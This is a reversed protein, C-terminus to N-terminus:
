LKFGAKGHVSELLRAIVHESLIGFACKFEIHPGNICIEEDFYITFLSTIDGRMMVPGVDDSCTMLFYIRSGVVYTSFWLGNHRCGNRGLGRWWSKKEKLVGAGGLSRSNSTTRASITSRLSPRVAPTSAAAAAAGWHLPTICIAFDHSIFVLRDGRLVSMAMALNSLPIDSALTTLYISPESDGPSDLPQEPPAAVDKSNLFFLQRDRSNAQHKSLQVLIHQKDHSVLVQDVNSNGHIDGAEIGGGAAAGTTLIAYECRKSLNWDLVLVRNPAFGILIDPDVPSIIWKQVPAHELDFSKLLSTTSVDVVHVQTPTHVLIRSADPQLLLQLILGKPIGRLQIVAKQEAVAEGGPTTLSTISVVMLQRSMDVFSVYEGDASWAVKQIVFKSRSAHLIATKGLQLDHLRVIGKESGSCYFRGKPSAALAAVPDIAGQATVSTEPPTTAYNDGISDVGKRASEAFNALATPEWANAYYGRIDYFRRSDPSLALGLVADQSALQYLHTFTDTTYIKVRGYGDGTVFLQGDRSISLKSAATFVEDVEDEYPDWRFVVGEFNLGLVQPMNPHWVLERLERIAITPDKRRCHGIHIPGDLEWASVPHRRYAVAVMTGDHSLAMHSASNTFKGESEAEEVEAVVNWSPQEDELSLLRVCRDDTALLLATDDDTFLMDLPRTKSPVSEASVICEGSSINWVKTTKYGYTALLTATDNLQMRDVHEGHKLPSSRAEQFDSVHFLSVTGAAALVAVKSGSAKISSAFNSGLPIRALTDDWVEASFGTVSITDTKSFLQYISSSKPCFAPVSSYVADPTRQLVNGFKGVIRLLDVSWSELLEEEQLTSAEPSKRRKIGKSYRSLDKSAVLLIRLQRTAALAYIWTLVANSTLFRKLVSVVEGDLIPSSVLHSSWNEAAYDLFDPKNNRILKTRLGNSLLCQMATLFVQKHGEQRDITLPRNTEPQGLLYERASQHALAIKGDNDAVAFGGCLGVITRPLDLVESTIDGLAQSLEATSLCRVSCTIIQLIKKTMSRDRPNPIEVVSTAMRDYIAEMGAPLESLALEIDARTHCRNVRDVALRLWLFNNESAEVIREEIEERFDPTGHAELEHRAYHHFDDLKGEIAVSRVTSSSSGKEYATKIEPTPRSSFLIRIPITSTVDMFLRLAARPNEAEDLGDIVWYLPQEDQQRFVISKFVRHWIFSPDATEFDMAEDVLVSIKEMMGPVSHAVQYALSRLVFSLTRKRKDGYRIFFYQCRLGDAVLNNVVYSCLVSKGTAPGGKIWLVSHDQTSPERWQMFSEDRTIWDSTGQTWQDRYFIYDLGPLEPLALLSKLDLSARRDSVGPKKGNNQSILKSVLSKLINRVTIYNPDWSDEYKCITHHDAHMSKSVEGPYGLVSSDKELVMVRTNKLGIPTPLTEYLSVIDLRPAIHRFQENVKQLTVSNKMLDSIYQKSNTIMVSDLIRSLIQALMTGRHPTALFTIASIAKIIAEYEPDNQGQMYAEKVILGGMSHVVFILPVTGMDLEDMNQDKAYKLDFLLEKAFDLVSTTVNGTTQFTANYGFTM